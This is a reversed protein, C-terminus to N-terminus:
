NLTPIDKHLLSFLFFLFVLFRCPFSLGVQYKVKGAYHRVIFAAERKQPVEYYEDDKHATQFKHLLTENSAGPFSFFFFYHPFFVSLFCHFYFSVEASSAGLFSFFFIYYFVSLFFLSTFVFYHLLTFSTFYLKM